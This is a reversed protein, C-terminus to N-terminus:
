DNRNVEKVLFEEAHGVTIILLDHFRGWENTITVTIISYADYLADEMSGYPPHNAAYEIHLEELPTLEPM